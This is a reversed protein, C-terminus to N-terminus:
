EFIKSITSTQKNELENTENPALLTAVPIISVFKPSILTIDNNVGERVKEGGGRGEGGGERERERMCVDKQCTIKALYTVGVLMPSFLMHM